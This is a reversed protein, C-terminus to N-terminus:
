FITDWKLTSGLTMRERIEMAGQRLAGPGEPQQSWTTGSQHMEATSDNELLGVASLTSPLSGNVKSLRPGSPKGRVGTSTHLKARSRRDIYVPELDRLFSPPPGLNKSKAQESM